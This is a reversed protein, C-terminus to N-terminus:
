HAEDSSLFALAKSTAQIEAQRTKTREEYEADLGACHEKLAALFKTDAALVNQTDDLDEQNFEVLHLLIKIVRIVFSLPFQCQRQKEQLQQNRSSRFKYRLGQYLTNKLGDEDVRQILVHPGRLDMGLDAELWVSESLGPM